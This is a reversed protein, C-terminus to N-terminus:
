PLDPPRLGYGEETRVIWSPEGLKARLVTMPYRLEHPHCPANYVKWMISYPEHVGEGLEVLGRLLKVDARNLRVERGDVTVVRTDPDIVLRGDFATLSGRPEPVLGCHNRIRDAVAQDDVPQAGAANEMEM